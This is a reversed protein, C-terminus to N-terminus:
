VRQAHLPEDSEDVPDAPSKSWESKGVPDTPSKSWESKGVPDTPSKSWESKDVPSKSWVLDDEDVIKLERSFILDHATLRHHDQLFEFYDSPYKNNRVSKLADNISDLNNDRSIAEHLTQKEENTM